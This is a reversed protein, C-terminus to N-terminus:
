ALDEPSTAMQRAAMREFLNRTLADVTERSPRPAPPTIQDVGGTGSTAQQRLRFYAAWEMLERSDVRSLLEAV